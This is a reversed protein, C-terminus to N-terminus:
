NAKISGDWNRGPKFRRLFFAALLFVVAGMWYPSGAMVHDYIFGGWLPGLVNMLSGVASTVGMLVGIERPSVCEVSLTTLAPFIFASTSSSLMNIALLLWLMPSFFIMVSILALSVLSVIGANVEGFRPMWRPVLLFNTLAISAGALMMMLSIQWTVAAFKEIIFLASTSGIGNFAFSFLSYVLLVMGLGPKRAMDAISLLPNYDRGKLPARDRKEAPLSEKLFIFGLVLNMLSLGASIFAPAELSLQGFLGGLAPGLILGLSWVTSISAFNRTREEPKSIDAIYASATSLNGGTIGGILRGLFLIWLSGGLGFIFYGLAQGCLSVLLVPRRGYRDGFKGLIPTSLFQGAAYIMPIMSVMLAQDSYQLVIQPAVPSLVTIGIVDMAMVLFIVILSGRSGRGGPRTRAPELSEQSDALPFAPEVSM